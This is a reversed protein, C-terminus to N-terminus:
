TRMRSEAPAMDAARDLLPQCRLRRAIDRAESTAQAAAAADGHRTLCEAHDLLGGALHYPTSLERLSSIASIFAAAAAQDGDHDALRARALDREARLMPVLYGPQYSDLL